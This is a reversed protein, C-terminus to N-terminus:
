ILATLWDLIAALGGLGLIFTIVKLAGQAQLRWNENQTIRRDHYDLVEEHDDLRNHAERVEHSCDDASM